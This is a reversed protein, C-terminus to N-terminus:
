NNANALLILLVVIIVVLPLAVIVLTRVIPERHEHIYASFRSPPRPEDEDYAEEIEEDSYQEGAQYARDNTYYQSYPDQQYDYDYDNQYDQDPEYEQDSDYQDYQDDSEYQDYAEAEVEVQEEQLFRDYKQRATPDSLVNYAQNILRMKKEADPSNNVDPHYLRALKRYSHKIQEATATQELGLIEYYNTEM